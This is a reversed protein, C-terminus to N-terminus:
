YDITEFRYWAAEVVSAPQGVGAKKAVTTIFDHHTQVHNWM